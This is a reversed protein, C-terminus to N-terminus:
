IQVVPSEQMRAVNLGCYWEQIREIADVVAPASSVGAKSKSVREQICAEYHICVHPSSSGGVCVNRLVLTRGQVVVNEANARSLPVM